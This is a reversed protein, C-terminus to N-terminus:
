LTSCDPKSCDSWLVFHGSVLLLVSLTFLPSFEYLCQHAQASGSVVVKKAVLHQGTGGM